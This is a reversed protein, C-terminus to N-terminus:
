LLFPFSLFFLFPSLFFSPFLRVPLFCSLDRGPPDSSNRPNKGGLWASPGEPTRLIWCRPAWSPLLEQGSPPRPHPVIPYRLIHGPSAKPSCGHFCDLTADSHNFSRHDVYLTWSGHQCYIAPGLGAPSTSTRITGSVNSIFDGSEPVSSPGRDVVLQFLDHM